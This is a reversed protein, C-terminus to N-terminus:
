KGAPPFWIGTERAVSAESDAAHVLNLATRNEADAQPITDNGFDGRITGAPAALPDTPGVLTRVKQIANPGTLILALFPKGVLSSTTRAFARLERKKLDAYHAELQSLTPRVMRADNVRLCAAEFRALIAGALGRELADPKLLVLTQQM